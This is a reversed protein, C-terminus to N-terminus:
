LLQEFAEFFVMGWIVGFVKESLELIFGKRFEVEFLDLDGRQIM